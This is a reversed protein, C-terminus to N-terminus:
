DKPSIDEEESIIYDSASKGVGHLEFAFSKFLEFLNSIQASTIFKKVPIEEKNMSKEKSRICLVSIIEIEKNYGRIEFAVPLFESQDIEPVYKQVIERFYAFSSNCDFCINITGTLDNDSFAEPTTHKINNM